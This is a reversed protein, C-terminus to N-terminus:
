GRRSLVDAWSIKPPTAPAHPVWQDAIGIARMVIFFPYLLFSPPRVQRGAEKARRRERVALPIWEGDPVRRSRIRSLADGARAIRAEVADGEMVLSTCPQQWDVLMGCGGNAHAKTSAVGITRLGLAHAIRMGNYMNEDTHLADADLWIHEPPVGLAAMGAAMTEAEVYRSHVAGGSSIFNAVQGREWLIAAWAVRGMQCRSLGGGEETPCGPVIVADLKVAGEGRVAAGSGACGVAGLMSLLSVAM